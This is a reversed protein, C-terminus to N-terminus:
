FTENLFCLEIKVVNLEEVEMVTNKGDKFGKSSLFNM